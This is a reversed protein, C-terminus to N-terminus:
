FYPKLKSVNLGYVYETYPRRYGKYLVETNKILEVEDGRVVLSKRDM